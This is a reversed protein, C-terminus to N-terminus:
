DGLLEAARAKDESNLTAKRHKAKQSIRWAIVLAIALLIFPGVWILWTAPTFPPEYLVFEGYRQVMFQKVQDPSQGSVLMDFAQDRLDKALDADSDALNQNQCVLCRLEAILGHYQAKVTEDPFKRIEVEAQTSTSVLGLLVFAAILHFVKM